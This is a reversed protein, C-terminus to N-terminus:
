FSAHKWRSGILVPEIWILSMDQMRHREITTDLPALRCSGICGFRSALMCLEHRCGLSGFAADMADMRCDPCFRANRDVTDWDDSESSRCCEVLKKTGSVGDLLATTWSDSTGFVSEAHYEECAAPSCRSIHSQRNSILCAHHRGASHQKTGRLTLVASDNTAVAALDLSQLIFSLLIINPLGLPM